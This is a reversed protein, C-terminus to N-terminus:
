FERKKYFNTSLIFSVIGLLLIFSVIYTIIVYDSQNNIFIVIDDVWKPKDTTKILKTLTMPLVFVIGFIALNFFKAKIYGFKFYIPLYTFTIFGLGCLAGIVDIFNILRPPDFINLYTFLLGSFAMIIIGVIIFMFVSLYRAAVIHSKKIPLSNIMVDSNNKDDYYTSYMLLMYAIISIGSPYVLYKFVPNNFVIFMFFGYIIVFWYHKKLLYLDKKLLNLM